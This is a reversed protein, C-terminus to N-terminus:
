AEVTPTVPPVPGYLQETTDPEKGAPRANAAFQTTLPVGVMAPILVGVTRAVSELLGACLVVLGILMVM